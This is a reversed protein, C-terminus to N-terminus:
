NKKSKTLFDIILETLEPAYDSKFMHQAHYSGEYIKLQKPNACEEFISKVKTFLGEDKSVVIFKELHDSRIAQGGAPSLLIVKELADDIKLELANLIAMGGMSGGVLAISKYGNEKLYDIAGLIDLAMNNSSGKKSNGYGRFDISLSTIGKDKLKECLFYWSEKNFIAGHAFIVALEKNGEFLAAEISGGDETTYNILKFNDKTEIPVQHSHMLFGSSFLLLMFYTKM